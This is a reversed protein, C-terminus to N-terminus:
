KTNDDWKRQMQVVSSAKGRSGYYPNLIYTAAQGRKGESRLIDVEVLTKIATFVSQQKMGLMQGIEAQSIQVSGEYGMLSFLIHLVRFEAGSIRRDKALDASASQYLMVWDKFKIRSRIGIVPYQDDSCSLEITLKQSKAAPTVKNAM